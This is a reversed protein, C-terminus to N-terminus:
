DHGGCCVGGAAVAVVDVIILTDSGNGDEGRGM